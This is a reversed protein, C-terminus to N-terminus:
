MINGIPRADKRLPLTRMNEQSEVSGLFARLDKHCDSENEDFSIV